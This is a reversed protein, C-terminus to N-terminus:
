PATSWSTTQAVDFVRQCALFTVTFRDFFGDQGLIGDFVLDDDEVFAAEIEYDPFPLVQIRVSGRWTPVGTSGLGASGGPVATLQVGMEDAMSKRFVCCAAGSDVLCDYRYSPVGNADLVLTPALPWPSGDGLRTYPHLM